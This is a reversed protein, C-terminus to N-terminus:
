DVYQLENSVLITQAFQEWRERHGDQQDQNLFPLAIGLEQDLPDRNFAQRFAFAVRERDTEGADVCRKAFHKSQEVLFPSNLLFMNQLPTTTRVRSAAHVNPDPFDFLALMPNLDLRSVGAYVTRRTEKESRPDISVGGISSELRGAIQLISDRYAEISLRQRNMRALLHNVPDAQINVDTPVSSQAWTDSILIERCLWKLSWGNQMFRVALDDLLAPHTPREGLSGFNSRTAVLGRGFLEGWVRNVIVRATLPNDRSVIARALELRGSGTTFRTQSDSMVQPFSRPVMPGKTDVNGRIHVPIDAPKKVDRVIHLGDEPKKAQGNKDKQRKGDLPRNFMETSAFVGALGYYGETRIPDVKHDHCRACAVTIGLLGRSVTDVQNEWEDARVAASGRGYYKPGLGVFGLAAHNRDDTPEVKDAALQLTVFRDFPMDDNLSDIVWDRYKYANPYFLSKNNGVIHAQDEAYRAVDLWMRAWREGHHPSNLVQDVANKWANPDEATVFAEVVSADPPLGVVSLWLRRILVRRSARAASQLGEEKRRKQIFGDIPNGSTSEPAPHTKPKRFAWYRRGAAIDISRHNKQTLSTGDRPDHAGDRIWKEFDAITENALKGTPPMEYSEYRIAALLLSSGPKGPVVAPGSEGGRRIAERSDVALGAERKEGSHCKYCKEVLVPRIRREFFDVDDANGVVPAAACAIIVLLIRNMLLSDIIVSPSSTPPILTDSSISRSRVCDAIETRSRCASQRAIGSALAM